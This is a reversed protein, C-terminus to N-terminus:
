TDNVAVEDIPEIVQKFDFDMYRQYEAVASPVAAAAAAAAPKFFTTITQTGAARNRERRLIHEILIDPNDMILSLVQSVPSQIQNTFYYMYDIRMGTRRVYAPDEIIDGQIINNTLRKKCKDFTVVKNKDQRRWHIRYCSRDCITAIENVAGNRLFQQREQRIAGTPQLFRDTILYDGSLTVLHMWKSEDPASTLSVYRWHKILETPTVGAAFLHRVGACQDCKRDTCMTCYYGDCTECNYINVRNRCFRCTHECRHTSIHLSCYLKMCRYCKSQSGLKKRSCQVCQLENDDIFVYPVRDSSQPKNGADREGMREALQLHAISCPNAYSLAMKLTKSLIMDEIPFEGRFLCDMMRIYFQKAKYEDRDNLLINILGGYIKKVIPANDRRKLAIGMATEEFHDPDDEYKNGFYRKKSFICFPDFAKDFELDQPRKLQPKIWASAEHGMEMSLRRLERRDTIPGGHRTELYETFDVFISDTDGYVLKTGPYHSLVMDRAKTVMMRGTATTCAAIEKRRIPSTSAGKQGYLSNNTVKYANQLGDFVAKENANYMDTISAVTDRPIRWKGGVVDKIVVFGDIEDINGVFRQGQNDVVVKYKAIKRVSSRQATLRMAIRPLIGKEGNTREVFRCSIKGIKRKDDGTGIYNDYEIDLTTYQEPIVIRSEADQMDRLYTYEIFDGLENVTSIKILEGDM